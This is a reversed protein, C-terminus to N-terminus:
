GVNNKYESNFTSLIDLVFKDTAAVIKTGAFTHNATGILTSITGGNLATVTANDIWTLRKVDGTSKIRVPLGFLHANGAATGASYGLSVTGIATGGLGAVTATAATVRDFIKTGSVTGGANATAFGMTETQAENFQNFGTIVATGGEGGAVGTVIFRVNRPYDLTTNTLVIAAATDGTIECTGLGTASISPLHVTYQIRHNIEDPDVKNGGLRIDPFYKKLAM